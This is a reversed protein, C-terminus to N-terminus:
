VIQQQQLGTIFFDHDCANGQMIIRRWPLAPCPSAVVMGPKNSDCDRKQMM